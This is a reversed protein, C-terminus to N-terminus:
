EQIFHLWLLVLRAMLWHGFIGEEGSIKNSPSGRFDFIAFDLYNLVVSNGQQEYLMDM